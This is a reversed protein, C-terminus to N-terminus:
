GPSGKAAAIVNMNEWFAVMEQDPFNVLIPFHRYEQHSTTEFGWRVGLLLTEAKKLISV